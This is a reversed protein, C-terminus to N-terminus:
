KCFIINVSLSKDLNQLVEWFHVAKDNVFYHIAESGFYKEARLEFGKVKIRAYYELEKKNKSM